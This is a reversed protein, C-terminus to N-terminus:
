IYNTNRLGLYYRDSGTMDFSFQNWMELLKTFEARSDYGKVAIYYQSSFFDLNDFFVGLIVIKTDTLSEM